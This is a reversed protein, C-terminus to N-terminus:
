IEKLAHGVDDIFQHEIKINQKSKKLAAAFLGNPIEELRSRLIHAFSEFEGVTDCVESLEAIAESMDFIANTCILGLRNSAERLAEIKGYKM